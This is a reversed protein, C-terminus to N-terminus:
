PTFGLRERNQIWWSKWFSVLEPTPTTAAGRSLNHAATEAAFPGKVPVGPLTGSADCFMTFDGLFAVARLQAETQRSDLLEVMVPLVAKTPIRKLAVAVAADLGPATSHLAVIQRLVAVSAEGHPRYKVRLAETIEPFKRDSQLDGVERALESIASDSGLGIAAVLGVAHQSKALSAMLASAAALADRSSGAYLTGLLRDDDMFTPNPLSQYWRVLASLLLQDVMDTSSEGLGPILTAPEPISPAPLPLFAHQWDYNGSALPLIEYSGDTEKLFWLGSKGVFGRPAAIQEPSSAVRSMLPSAVFEVTLTASHLQGKITRVIRLQTSARSSSEARGGELTAVVIADARQRLAFMNISAPGLEGWASGQIVACGVLLQILKRGVVRM